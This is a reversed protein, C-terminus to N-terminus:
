ITRKDNNEKNKSKSNDVILFIGVGAIMIIFLIKGKITSKVNKNLQKELKAKNNINGVFVEYVSTKEDVKYPIFTNDKQVALISLYPNKELDYYKYTLRIDGEQLDEEYPDRSYDIGTTILGYVSEQKSYYRNAPILSMGKEDVKYDGIMVNSSKEVSVIKKLYDSDDLPETRERWEYEYENSDEDKYKVYDEVIRKAKISGFNDLELFSVLEDYKIKGSVLVLKVENNSDVVGDTVYTVEELIEKNLEKEKNVNIFAFVGFYIVILILIIKGLSLKM